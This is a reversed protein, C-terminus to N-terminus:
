RPWWAKGGSGPECIDPVENFVRNMRWRVISEGFACGGVGGGGAMGGQPHRITEQGRRERPWREESL